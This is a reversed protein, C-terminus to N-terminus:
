ERLIPCVTTTEGGKTELLNYARYPGKKGGVLVFRLGTNVQTKKEEEKSTTQGQINKGGKGSFKVFFHFCICAGGKRERPPTANEKRQFNNLWVSSLSGIVDWLQVAVNRKEIGFGSLAPRGKEEGSPAFRLGGHQVVLRPRTKTGGGVPVTFFGWVGGKGDAPTTGRSGKRKGV